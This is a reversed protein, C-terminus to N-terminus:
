VVLLARAVVHAGGHSPSLPLVRTPAAGPPSTESPHVLGSGGGCQINPGLPQVRGTQSISRRGPPAHCKTQRRESPVSIPIRPTYRSIAGGSRSTAVSDHPPSQSSFGLVSPGERFPPRAGM